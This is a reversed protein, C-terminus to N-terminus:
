VVFLDTVLLQLCFEHIVEEYASWGFLGVDKLRAVACLGSIKDYQALWFKHKVELHVM